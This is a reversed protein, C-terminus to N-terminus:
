LSHMDKIILASFFQIVHACINVAKIQLSELFTTNGYLVIHEQSTHSQIWLLLDDLTDYNVMILDIWKMM